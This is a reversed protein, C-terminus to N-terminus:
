TSSIENEERRTILNEITEQAGCIEAAYLCPRWNFSNIFDFCEKCTSFCYVGKLNAYWNSFEKCCDLKIWRFLGRKEVTFMSGNTLVRFKAM